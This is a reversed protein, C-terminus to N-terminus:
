RQPIHPSILGPAAERARASKAGPQELERRQRQLLYPRYEAARFPGVIGAWPLARPIAGMDTVYGQLPARLGCGGCEKQSEAGLAPDQVDPLVLRSAVVELDGGIGWYPRDHGSFERKQNFVASLAALCERSCPVKCHL